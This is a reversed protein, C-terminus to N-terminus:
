KQHILLANLGEVQVWWEKMTDEPKGFTTGEHFFGGNISDWGYALAHDVLMRALRETKPDTGHPFWDNSDDSLVQEQASGDAKMRWIQMQGTRENFYIYEGDPSYEPGDDLGKATTLRTEQGGVAPITYIDFEGNRQGTFALTKGDPSWGHWYSPSDQTIRGSVFLNEYICVKL